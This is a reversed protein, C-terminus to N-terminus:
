DEPTERWKAAACNLRNVDREAFGSQFQRPQQSLRGVLDPRAIVNRHQFAGLSQVDTM